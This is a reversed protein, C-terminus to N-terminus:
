SEGKNIQSELSKIEDKKETIKKEYDQILNNIFAIKKDFFDKIQDDTPVSLNYKNKTKIMSDNIGRESIRDPMLTEILSKADDMSRCPYINYYSGSGDSYQNIKWQINGNARGFLTVLKLNDTDVSFSNIKEPAITEDLSTINYDGYKETVIFDYDGNLFASIDDFLELDANNITARANKLLLDLRKREQHYKNHLENIQRQYNTKDKEYRQELERLNKEKWSESPADHLSKVVFNEGSPIESGESVFIEQVITEQANLKGVVIVKKGDSTYKIDNM